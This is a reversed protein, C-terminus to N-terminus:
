RCVRYVGLDKRVKEQRFYGMSYVMKLGKFGMRLAYPARTEWGSLVRTRDGDSLGTFLHPKLVFAWATYEIFVLILSLVRADRRDLGAIYDDVFQALDADRSSSAPSGGAPFLTDGVADAVAREKATFGRGRRTGYRRSLRHYVFAGTLVVLFGLIGRSLFRRRTIQEM